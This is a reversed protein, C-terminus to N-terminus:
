WFDKIKQQLITAPYIFHFAAYHLTKDVGGEEKLLIVKM